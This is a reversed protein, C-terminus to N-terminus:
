GFASRDCEDQGLGIAVVIRVVCRDPDDRGGTTLRAPQGL